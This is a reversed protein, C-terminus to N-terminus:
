GSVDPRPFFARFWSSPSPGKGQRRTRLPVRRRGQPGGALPGRVRRQRPLVRVRGPLAAALGRRPLRPLAPRVGRGHPQAQLPPGGSGADRARRRGAGRRAARRPRRLDRRRGDSSPPLTRSPEPSSSASAGLLPLYIYLRIPSSLDPDRALRAHSISALLHAGAGRPHFSLLPLASSLRGAASCPLSIRRGRERERERERNHQHAIQRKSTV